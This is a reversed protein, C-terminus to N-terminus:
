LFFFLKEDNERPNIEIVDTMLQENLIIHLKFTLSIAELTLNKVQTKKNDLKRGRYHISDIYQTPNLCVSTTMAAEVMFLLLLSHSLLDM